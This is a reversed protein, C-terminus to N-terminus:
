LSERFVRIIEDRSLGKYGGKLPITRDALDELMDKSVGLESLKMVVGIEKMWDEM